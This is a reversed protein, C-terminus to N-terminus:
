THPSQFNSNESSFNFLISKKENKTYKGKQMLNKPQISMQM